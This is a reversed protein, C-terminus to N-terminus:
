TVNKNKALFWIAGVRAPFCSIANIYIHLFPGKDGTLINILSCPHHILFNLVKQTKLPTPIHKGKKRPKRNLLSVSTCVKLLLVLVLRPEAERM